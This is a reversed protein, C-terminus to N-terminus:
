AQNVTWEKLRDLSKLFPKIGVWLLATSVLHALTGVILLSYHVMQKDKFVFDTTMAVVLPGLGLGILNVVFLYIASAQGRMPNPMMQQIAAPAVGFPASALFAAPILLAIAWSAESMLPYAMGFPFWMVSAMLGVRLTADRSGRETMWDALRGGAVVGLTSAIAVILGYAQGIAAETWGYRRVFMTPIWASAGYSSFSLLAFGVNHCLFTMWNAKLYAIVERMPTQEVAPKGDTAKVSRVGRRIPERVTYMLLALLVGPMGVIFFVVQWPRTEGVIPLNWAEQATAFRAVLGGIILALGSGIYIGMSYISIATARRKPPFYDTILSYAAPSLAAEGIGVGMRMLLLQIFNKALGCGATFLSWFAFGVAIIGRRSKSDALRGLPIGFFTYFVAFALGSLLGMLTDSIGLDRQIPRVLLNLIQRDIFSFVYVFTLVGVVYWAYPARPYAEEQQHRSAQSEQVAKASATM